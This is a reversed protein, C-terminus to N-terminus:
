EVGLNILREPSTFLYTVSEGQQLSSSLRFGFEQLAEFVCLNVSHSMAVDDIFSTDSCDLTWKYRKCTAPIRPDVVVRKRMLPIGFIEAELLKAMSAKTPTYLSLTLDQKGPTRPTPVRTEVVRVLGCPPTKPMLLQIAEPLETIGYFKCETIIEEFCASDKLGVLTGDRLFNLIHRFHSGDRDIFYRGQQDTTLNHRGSFM